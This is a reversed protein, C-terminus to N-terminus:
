KMDGSKMGGRSLPSTMVLPAFGQRDHEAFAPCGTNVSAITIVPDDAQASSSLRSQKSREFHRALEGM